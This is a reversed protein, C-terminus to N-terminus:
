RGNGGRLPSGVVGADACFRLMTQAWEERRHKAALLRVNELAAKLAAAEVELGRALPALEQHVAEYYRALARPSEGPYQRMVQEICDDVRPHM